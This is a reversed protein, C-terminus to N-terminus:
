RSAAASPPTATTSSSRPRARSASASTRTGTSSSRPPCTTSRPWASSRPGSARGGRLGGGRDLRPVHARAPRARRGLRHRLEADRHGHEPLAADGDVRGRIRVPSAIGTRKPRLGDVHARRRRRRRLHRLDRAPAAPRGGDPLGAGGGRHGGQPVARVPQAPRAQREEGEGQRLRRRHRRLPGHPPPRLARLLHPQHRRAPPLAALRPRGLAGGGGPRPVGEAHHRRRRRPRRRVARRPDAVARRRPRHRGSACAAYCSAVRAGNWGLAQTLTSAAVYGPYGNRVTEGGAVFQVDAWGIGADDLAALAADIGYEHFPRGWKGWEHM